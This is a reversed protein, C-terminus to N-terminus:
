ANALARGAAAPDRATLVARIVSVGAAGASRCHGANEPTVGGLALVPYPALVECAERLRDVGLPAGYRAKSPTVFVPGFTVFDCGGARAATAEALSHTSAGLFREPGLLVRADTAELSHGALHVGDAGVALAVDVRDNILLPVGLPRTVALVERALAALARAPLDKERLQVGVAGPPAGHLARALLAPLEGEPALRCDTILYLRFPPKMGPILDSRQSVGQQRTTGGHPGTASSRGLDAELCGNCRKARADRHQGTKRNTRSQCAVSEGPPVMAFRGFIV